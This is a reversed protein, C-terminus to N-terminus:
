QNDIVCREVRVQPTAHSICSYAAQLPRFPILLCVSQTNSLFSQNLSLDKLFVLQCCLYLLLLCSLEWDLFVVAVTAQNVEMGSMLFSWEATPKKDICLYRYWRGLCPWVKNLLESASMLCDSRGVSQGSHLGANGRSLPHM